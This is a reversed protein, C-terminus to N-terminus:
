QPLVELTAAYSFRRGHAQPLEAQSDETSAELWYMGAQPWTVSFEGQANTTRKMGEPSNRYRTAGRILEIELNAQAQGNVLMRFIAEEGAYLDNPHTVPVLEIGKGTPQLATQSPAGNTVFTEIRGLSETIRLENAEAPVAEALSVRDGRWRRRQGNEEWSAFLGQYVVAIRYTGQQPLPLDFVSRYKGVLRNLAEVSRGDPATVTLGDLQLPVHNFYFLDNSVAADVTVWPDNGSLVTQSPRLWVKHAHVTTPLWLTTALLPLLIRQM